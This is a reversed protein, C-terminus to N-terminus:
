HASNATAKNIAPTKFAKFAFFCLIAYCIAPVTFATVYSSAESVVGALLPLFAGGIIATCL